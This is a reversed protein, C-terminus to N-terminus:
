YFQIKKRMNQLDAQYGDLDLKRRREAVEMKKAEKELRGNMEAMKKKYIENIKTYQDKIIAINEKQM